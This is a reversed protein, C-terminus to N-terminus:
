FGGDGEVFGILWYPHIKKYDPKVYKSFDTRKTNMQNKHLIVEDLSDLYSKKIL